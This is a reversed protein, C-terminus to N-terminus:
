KRKEPVLKYIETSFNGTRLSDAFRLQPDRLIGSVGSLQNPWTAILAPLISVVIGDTVKEDTIELTMSKLRYGPGFTKALDNPDVWEVTKLDNLNAFTVLMPSGEGSLEFRQGVPVAASTSLAKASEPGAGPAVRLPVLDTADGRWSDGRLLAFLYRGGPLEVVTAEGRITLSASSGGTPVKYKLRGGKALQVSSGSREGEPTEVVVTIKQKWRYQETCGALLPFLIALSWVFSAGPRWFATLSLSM